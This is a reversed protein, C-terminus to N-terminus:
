KYRGELSVCTGLEDIRKTIVLGSEIGDRARGSNWLRLLIEGNLFAGLSKRWPAATAREAMIKIVSSM